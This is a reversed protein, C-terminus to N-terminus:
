LDVLDLFVDLGRAVSDLLVTFGLADDGGAVGGVDGALSERLDVAIKLGSLVSIELLLRRVVGDCTGIGLGDDFGLALDKHESLLDAPEVTLIRRFDNWEEGLM